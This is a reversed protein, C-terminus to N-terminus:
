CFIIFTSSSPGQKLPQFSIASQEFDESGYNPVLGKYECRKNPKRESVVKNNQFIFMSCRVNLMSYIILCGIGFIEGVKTLMAAPYEVNMKGLTDEWDRLTHLRKGILSIWKGM